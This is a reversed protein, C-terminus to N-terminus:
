DKNRFSESDAQCEEDVCDPDPILRRQEVQTEVKSSSIATSETSESWEASSEPVTESRLEVDTTEVQDPLALAASTESNNEVRLVFTQSGRGLTIQRPGMVRIELDAEAISDGEHLIRTKGTVRDRLVAVSRSKSGEVHIVGILTLNKVYSDTIPAAQLGSALTLSMLGKWFGTM